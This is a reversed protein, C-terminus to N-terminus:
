ECKKEKKAFWEMFEDFLDLTHIADTGCHKCRGFDYADVNTIQYWKKFRKCHPCYWSPIRM